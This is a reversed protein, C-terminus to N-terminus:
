ILSSRINQSLNFCEGCDQIPIDGALVASFLSGAVLVSFMKQLFSIVMMMMKTQRPENSGSPSFKGLLTNISLSAMVYWFTQKKKYNKYFAKSGGGPKKKYFNTGTETTKQATKPLKQRNETTKRGTKLRGVSCFLLPVM